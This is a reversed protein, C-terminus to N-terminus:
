EREDRRKRTEEIVKEVDIGQKRAWTTVLAYLANIKRELRKLKEEREAESM